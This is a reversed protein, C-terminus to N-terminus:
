YYKDHVLNERKIFPLFETMNKSSSFSHVDILFFKLDYIRKTTKIFTSISAKIWTQYASTRVIRSTGEFPCDGSVIGVLIWSQGKKYAV